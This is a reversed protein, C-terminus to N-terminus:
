TASQKFRITAGAKFGVPATQFQRNNSTNLNSKNSIKLGTDLGNAFVNQFLTDTGGVVVIIDVMSYNQDGPITVLGQGDPAVAFEAAVDSVTLGMHVVKGTSQGKLVLTETFAAAM